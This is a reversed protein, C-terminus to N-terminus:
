DFHNPYVADCDFHTFADKLRAFGGSTYDVYVLELTTKYSDSERYHRTVETLIELSDKCFRFTVSTNVSDINPRGAERYTRKNARIEPYNSSM